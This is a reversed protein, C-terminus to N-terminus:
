PAVPFRLHWPFDLTGPVRLHWSGNAPFVNVTGSVSNQEHCRIRSCLTDDAGVRSNISDLLVDDHRRITEESLQWQGRADRRARELEEPTLFPRQWLKIFTGHGLHLDATFWVRPM